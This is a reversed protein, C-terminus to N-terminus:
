SRATHLAPSPPCHIEGAESVVGGVARKQGREKGECAQVCPTLDPGWPHLVVACAGTASMLGGGNKPFMSACMLFAYGVAHLTPNLQAVINDISRVNQM